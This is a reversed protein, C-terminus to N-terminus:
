KNKALDIKEYEKTSLLELAKQLVENKDNYIEYFGNYDWLNQAIQAKLRLQILEKSIEYEEKVFELEENEEKVYTFFLEMVEEEMDFGKKYSKIDDYKKLIDERNSEVYTLAFNNVLGSRILDRYYDSIETTDLPVFVDPMVGGGGYIARKTIRTEFKLSDPLKISDVNSMEGNLYRNYYDNKYADLDDYPKQVSRGAPTYYRAITLRIQSGDSLDIPRQVLGKGYTRRGVILGRDWDQVAGSVIESASATTEDTLIILKGKEFEGKEGANMDRRPQHEGESYVVLKKGSLFEDSVTKAAYLLGGGNGQLDFVLNEMGQKKLDIINKKMEATTSRSFSTLKIYGTKDDIMYASVVSNLAINDRVIVYELPKKMGKRLVAIRVKSDKEGLLRDRVGSNKLGTGAVNEGDITVIKDGAMIGLKESPGGTTPNVVRLTDNLIQFRIGIGVFSGKINRNAAEVEEKPYYVSHPDLTKLMAEIATETIQPGDVEDVYMNTIYSFVEAFKQTTEVREPTTQSFSVFSITSLLATKIISKSINM